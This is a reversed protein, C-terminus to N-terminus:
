CGGGGGGGGDGGSCGGGGGGDGGYGHGHHGGYGADGAFVYGGTYHGHRGGYRSRPQRRRYSSADAMVPRPSYDYMNSKRSSSGFCM